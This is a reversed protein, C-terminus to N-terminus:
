QAKQSSLSNVSLLTDQCKILMTRLFASLLFFSFRPRDYIIKNDTFVETSGQLWLLEHNKIIIDNQLVQVSLTFSALYWGSQFM